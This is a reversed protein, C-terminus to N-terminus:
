DVAPLRLGLNENALTVAQDDAPHRGAGVLVGHPLDRHEAVNREQTVEELLLLIELQTPLQDDEQRRGYQLRDGRRRRRTRRGGLGTRRRPLSSGTGFEPGAIAARRMTSQVARSSPKMSPQSRGSRSRRRTGHRLM